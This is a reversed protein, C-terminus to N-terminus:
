GKVVGDVKWANGVVVLSYVVNYPSTFNLTVPVSSSNGDTTANGVTFSSPTNQVLLIPDVSVIVGSPNSVRTQFADTLLTSSFSATHSSNIYSLYSTVLENVVAAPAIAPTTTKSTDTKLTSDKSQIFNQYFVFGLAGILAVSLIAIIILHASGSQYKTNKV